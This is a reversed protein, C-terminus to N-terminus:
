ENIVEVPLVVGRRYVELLKSERGTVVKTGVPIDSSILARGEVVKLVKVNVPKVRNGNEIALVYDGDKLHLISSVPVIKGRFSRGNVEAIVREGAKFNGGEVKVELVYLSNETAPYVKVVKGVSLGNLKVPSGVPIEKAEEPPVNLLVRMGFQPYIVKMLPKGPLATDGEHVFLGSVVGDQPARIETYKLRSLLAERREKLAEKKLETEEIKAKLSKVKSEALALRNEAEELSVKPVAGKEYLFKEREYNEKANKLLVKSSTLEARLASLAKESAEIERELAGIEKRIESDDIKLLLEGKKFSEGESKYVRLVTGSIKTSISADRYPKVTGVYKFTKRLEGESVVSYNVPIPYTKPPPTKAMELKRKKVAKVGVIVSVVLILGFIIWARKSKM